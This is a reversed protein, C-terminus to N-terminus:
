RSTAEIKRTDRAQNAETQKNAVALEQQIRYEAENQCARDARGARDRARM